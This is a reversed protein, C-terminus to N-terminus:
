DLGVIFFRYFFYLHTWKSPVSCVDYFCFNSIIKEKSNNMADSNIKLVIEDIFSIANPLRIFYARVRVNFIFVNM